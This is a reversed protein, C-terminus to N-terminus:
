YSITLLSIEPPNWLRARPGTEGVGATVFLPLGKYLYFGRDYARGLEDPIPPISGIWPLRIQGGHTHGSLVLDALRSEEDLVVDPNHSLLIVKDEEEIGELAKSLDAAFWLDSIGVLTIGTMGIPVSENELVEIHLAELTQAIIEPQWGEYDHNGLVAYVGFPASLNGLPGLLVSQTPDDYIFDGVLLIIDPHEALTKKVVKRVWAEDRYPGVHIDGILAVRLEQTSSPSLSIDQTHVTLIKPEIVSGYFIVIWSVSLFLLFFQTKWVRLSARHAIIKHVFLFGASVLYFFTIADFYTM